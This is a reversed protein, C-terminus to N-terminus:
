GAKWKGMLVSQVFDRKGCALLGERDGKWLLLWVVDVVRFSGNGRGRFGFELSKIGFDVLVISGLRRVWSLFM